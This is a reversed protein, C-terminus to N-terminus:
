IILLKDGIFSVFDSTAPMQDAVMLMLIFMALLTTIGMTIKERREDGTSAPTFFGVIAVLTIITTPIILNVVYYLPKRKIILSGEIIVWPEPCCAYTYQLSAAIFSVFDSTAPMQDAVMLMLIFMALLTTIGMTIKERREDGTSAPTFFGVIAVLTIITTPIILNVVYYLPKRKIILSGEIIVWPEPCCAYTYQHDYPFYRVDLRCYITYLAPYLFSVKAGRKGEWHRSEVVINMYRESEERNM